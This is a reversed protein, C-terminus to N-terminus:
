GTACVEYRTPANPPDVGLPFVQAEAHGHRGRSQSNTLRDRADDAAAGGLGDRVGDLVGEEGHGLDVVVDPFRM